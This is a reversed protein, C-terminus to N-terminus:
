QVLFCGHGLPGPKLSFGAAPFHDKKASVAVRVPLPHLREPNGSMLQVIVLGARMPDRDQVSVIGIGGGAYITMSGMAYQRRIIRLALNKGGVQGEGAGPTMGLFRQHILIMQGGVGELLIRLPDMALIQQLLVVPASGGAGATMSIVASQGRTYCLHFVHAPLTVYRSRIVELLARMLRGHFVSLHGLAYGTM